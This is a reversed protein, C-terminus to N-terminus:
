RRGYEDELRLQFFLRGRALGDPGPKAVGAGQCAGQHGSPLVYFHSPRSGGLERRRMWGTLSSGAQRVRGGGRARAVTACDVARSASAPLRGFFPTLTHGPVTEDGRAAAIPAEVGLANQHPQLPVFNRQHVDGRGARAVVDDDVVQEPVRLGLFQRRHQRARRSHVRGVNEM